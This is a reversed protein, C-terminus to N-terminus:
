DRGPTEIRTCSQKGLIPRNCPVRHTQRHVGFNGGDEALLILPEHFLYGDIWGVQGNAGYYPFLESEKKGAVRRSRETDNVPIRRSDLFDCVEGLRVWRWGTPLARSVNEREAALVM